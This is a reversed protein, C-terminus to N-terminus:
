NIGFLDKYKKAVIRNKMIYPEAKLWRGKIVCQAYYLAQYPDQMIVNEAAPWRSKLVDYAYWCSDKPSTMIAPEGKPWRGRIPSRAYEYSAFSDKSILEEAAPWKNGGTSRLYDVLERPRVSKPIPLQELTPDRTQTSQAVDLRTKFTAQENGPALKREKKSDEEHTNNLKSIITLENIDFFVAQNKENPHITGSGPDIVAHIRANDLIKRSIIAQPATKYKEKPGYPDHPKYTSGIVKYMARWIKKNDPADDIPLDKDMTKKISQAIRDKIISPDNKTNWVNKEDIDARFVWIFPAYQMFPIKDIRQRLVYSLPYAYLGMPTNYMTNPNIAFKDLTTFTVYMNDTGYKESVQILKNLISYEVPSKKIEDLRM